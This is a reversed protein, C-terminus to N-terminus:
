SLEQCDIRGIAGRDLEEEFVYRKSLSGVAETKEEFYTRTQTQDEPGFGDSRSRNRVLAVIPPSRFLFGFRVRRRHLGLQQIMEGLGCRWLIKLSHGQNNRDDTM